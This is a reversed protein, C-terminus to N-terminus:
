IQEVQKVERDILHKAMKGTVIFGIIEVIRGSPTYTDASQGKDLKDALRGIQKYPLNILEHGGDKLMVTVKM